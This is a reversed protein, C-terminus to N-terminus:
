VSGSSGYYNGGRETGFLEGGTSIISISVRLTMQIDLPCDEESSFLKPMSEGSQRRQCQQTRGSIRGLEM